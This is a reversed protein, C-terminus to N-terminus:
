GRRADLCCIERTSAASVGLDRGHEQGEVLLDRVLAVAARGLELGVGGVEGDGVADRPVRATKVRTSARGEAKPWRELFLHLVHDDVVEERAVLEALDDALLVLRRGRPVCMSAAEVRASPLM